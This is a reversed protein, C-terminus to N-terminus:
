LRTSLNYAFVVSSGILTLLGAYMPLAGWMRKDPEGTSYGQMYVIRGLLYSIGALSATAPYLMGATLLLALFAPQNELANQHGRQVGNFKKRYELNPCNETTAYLDPYKVGFAKRAQMVKFALYGHHVAWSGVVTGVLWGHEPRLTIAVM